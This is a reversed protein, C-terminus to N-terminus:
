LRIEYDVYQRVLDDHSAIIITSGSKNLESLIKMIIDANESDLSGTPEDCLILKPSKLIIKAMAVRQQEGGSLEYIPTKVSANLSVKALANEIQDIKSKKSQKRITSIIALNEYITQNDILGFNQFLYSIESNLLSRGLKTNIRPNDYGLLRLDGEYQSDLLGIINLLTSKGSGSSGSLLVFQGKDIKMNFDEFIVKNYEKYLQNLEIM